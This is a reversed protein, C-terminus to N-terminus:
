PICPWSVPDLCNEDIELQLRVRGLKVYNCKVCVWKKAYIPVCLVPLFRKKSWFKRNKALIEFNLARWIKVNNQLIKAFIDKFDIGRPMTKYKLNSWNAFITCVQNRRRRKKQLNVDIIITILGNLSLIIVIIVVEEYYYPIYHSQM